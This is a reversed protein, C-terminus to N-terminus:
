LSCAVSCTPPITLSAAEQSPPTLRDCCPLPPSLDIATIWFILDSYYRQLFLLAEPSNYEKSITRM